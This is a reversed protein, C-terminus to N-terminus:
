VTVGMAVGLETLAEGVPKPTFYLDREIPLPTTSQWESISSYGWEDCDSGLSSVCYGYVTDEGDWETVFYTYRGIGFLKVFAINDMPNKGGDTEGIAPINKWEAKTVIKM